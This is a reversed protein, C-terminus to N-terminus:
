CSTLVTRYLPKRFQETQMGLSLTNNQNDSQHNKGHQPIRFLQPPPLSIHFTLQVACGGVRAARLKDAQGSMSGPIHYTPHDIPDPKASQETPRYVAPSHAIVNYAIAQSLSMTPRAFSYIHFILNRKTFPHHNQPPRKELVVSNNAHHIADVHSTSLQCRKLCRPLFSLLRLKSLTSFDLV